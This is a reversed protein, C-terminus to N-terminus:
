DGKIDFYDMPRSNASWQEPLAAGCAVAAVRPIELLSESQLFALGTEFLRVRAHQRRLNRNMAALLGPLLTTRMVGLDGSLPNALPLASDAQFFAELQRIDVFSYSIAEQY